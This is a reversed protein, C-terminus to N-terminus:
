VVGFKRLNDHRVRELLARAVEPGQELSVQLRNCHQIDSPHMVPLLEDLMEAARDVQGLLVLTAAYILRAHANLLADSELLFQVFDSLSAMGEARFATQVEPSALVYDVIAEESMEGKGIFANGPLRDSYLLNPGALDFLPFRFDWIYVGRPVYELVVGRLIHEFDRRFFYVGSNHLGSVRERMLRSILRKNM